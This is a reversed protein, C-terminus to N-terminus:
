EKVGVVFKTMGAMMNPLNKPLQSLSTFNEALIKQIRDSYSLFQCVKKEDCSSILAELRMLNHVAISSATPDAKDMGDKIRIIIGTEGKASGFYGGSNVDWFLGDMENQLTAAWQVWSDDFTSAYLELCADIIFAYDEACTPIESADLIRNLQSTHENYMHTRIYRAATLAINLYKSESFARSAKALSSITLGNWSAVIKKDVEPRSRKDRRARLVAISSNLIKQTEATSLKFKAATEETSNAKYLINKGKLHGAENEAAPVNGFEYVAYRFCFIEYATSDLHSKIERATWTYLGGEEKVDEEVFSDADESAYFVGNLNRLHSFIFEIIEEAVRKYYSNKTISYLDAYISLLMAQDYLM